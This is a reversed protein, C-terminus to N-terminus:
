RTDQRRLTLDSLRLLEMPFAYTWGGEIEQVDILQQGGGEGAAVADELRVVRGLITLGWVGDLGDEFWAGCAIGVGPGKM